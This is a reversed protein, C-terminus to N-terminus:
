ICARKPCCTVNNGCGSSGTNELGWTTLLAVIHDRNDSKLCLKKKILRAIKLDYHTIRIAAGELYCHLKIGALTAIM